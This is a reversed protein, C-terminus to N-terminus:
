SREEYIIKIDASRPQHQPDIAGPLRDNQCPPTRGALPDQTPRTWWWEAKNLILNPDSPDRDEPKLCPPFGALEVLFQGADHVPPDNIGVGLADALVFHFAMDVIRAAACSVPDSAETFVEKALVIERLGKRTPYGLRPEGPQGFERKVVANKDVGEILVRTRSVM